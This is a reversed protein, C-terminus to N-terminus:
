IVTYEQPFHWFTEEKTSQCSVWRKQPSRDMQFCLGMKVLSFWLRHSHVFIWTWCAAVNIKPNISLEFERGVRQNSLNKPTRQSRLIFICWGQSMAGGIDLSCCRGSLVCSWEWVWSRLKSARCIQFLKMPSADVLWVDGKKVSRLDNTTM